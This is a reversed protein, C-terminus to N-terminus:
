TTVYAICREVYELVEESIPYLGTQESPLKRIEWFKDMLKTDGQFTDNSIEILECAIQHGEDSEPKIDHKICWEIRRLLSIYQQTTKDNNSLNPITEQLFTKEDDQFYDIWKKSTNQSNQVLETVREWTLSEEMDIMNILSTTNSISTQLKSLQEQLYNHHSILIQKYSLKDLVDRINELPLSLSKLITIKELKFLDKESYYRRGNDEKFSPTLLNIQDYYRLTRISINRQKSVEGTTWYKM